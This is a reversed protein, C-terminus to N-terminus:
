RRGEEANLDLPAQLHWYTPPSRDDGRLGDALVGQHPLMVDFEPFLAAATECAARYDDPWTPETIGHRLHWRAWESATGTDIAGLRIGSIPEVRLRGWDDFEIHFAAWQRLFRAREGDDLEDFRVRLRGDSWREFEGRAHLFAEFVEEHHVDPAAVHEDVGKGDLRGRVSLAPTRGPELDFHLHLSSEPRLVEIVEDVAEIRAETRDGCWPTFRRRHIDKLRHPLNQLKRKDNGQGKKGKQARRGRASREIRIPTDPLLPDSVVWVTWPGHEAVFVQEEELATEGDETIDVIAGRDVEVLGRREAIEILRRAIVTPRGPLLGDSSCIDDATLPLGGRAQMLLGVLEERPQTQAVDGLFRWCKVEVPRHMHIAMAKAM